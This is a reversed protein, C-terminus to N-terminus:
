TCAANEHLTSGVGRANHTRHLTSCREETEVFAVHVKVDVPIHQHHVVAVLLMGEGFELTAFLVADVKGGNRLYALEGPLGDLFVIREFLILLGQVVDLSGWAAEGRPLYGDAASKGAASEADLETAVPWCEEETGQCGDQAEAQSHEQRGLAAVVIYGDTNRCEHCRQYRPEGGEKREIWGDCGGKRAEHMRSGRPVWQHRAGEEDHRSNRQDVEHAVHEVAVDLHSHNTGQVGQQHDKGHCETNGEGDLNAVDVVEHLIERHSRVM